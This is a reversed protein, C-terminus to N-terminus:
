TRNLHNASTATPVLEMNHAVARARIQPTCHLSFNDNVLHIRLREPYRRRISKYFALVEATSKALCYGAFLVDAHVDYASSTASEM